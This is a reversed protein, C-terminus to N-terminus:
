FSVNVGFSVTKALPTDGTRYGNLPVELEMNKTAAYLFCLNTATVNFVVNGLKAKSTISSPLQYALGIEKLRIFDSSKVYRTSFLDSGTGGANPRPNDVVDGPKTWYNGAVDKSINTAARRGDHHMFYEPYNFLHGGFQYTLLVNLSFGKYVVQNNLGGSITPYAKAVISREAKSADNVVNDASYPKAPDKLFEALGTEPNVGVYTPFYFSYLDKGEEYRYFEGDGLNMSKGGPLKEVKAKLYSISFDANWKVKSKLMDTGHFEFDVGQNSIEGANQLVTTFGTSSSVPVEMILNSTYKRFYELSFNFRDALTIDTGINLNKSQEWGLDKNAPQSPYIASNSGYIGDFNYLPLHGYFSDPLRGNTGYSARLKGDTILSAAKMFSEQSFRWSGSVSYFVGTRKDAGLQSSRDARINAGVYYKNDFNYNVNSLFSQLFKKDTQGLARSPAGVSLDPLKDTSYNSVAAQTYNRHYSQVEYGALADLNHKEKFSKNYMFINSSTLALVKYDDTQGMGKVSGGGDITNPGWYENIFANSFDVGNTTKFSLDKTFKVTFNLNGLARFNETRLFKDKGNLEYYPNIGRGMLVANYEGNENKLTKSPNAQQLLGLPTGYGIGQSQSSQDRYGKQDTKSLQTKVDMSLWDALENNLNVVGSYRKFDTGRALGQIDQYGFSTYYKSKASGGSISVQYNQEQGHKYIYDRWDEGNVRSLGRKDLQALAYDEPSNFGSVGGRDNYYNMLALKSYDYYEIGNMTEYSNTAMSSVGFNAQLNVNVKGEKGKKTTIIVVGNAARSGYLSAAAADKLVTLSEIDNPNLSSLINSSARSNFNGNEVPVGDIVYLPSTSSSISGIGRVQIEGASGPDGTTSAVRVGSVKGALAKDVSEVSPVSLADAKVNAASGTFSSKKATGYAVVIVEDLSQNSSSLVVRMNPKATEEKSQLGVYSFVLTKSADQPIDLTFNGDFDTVTGITTGKIVVSAGIVPLNDEASIVVGSAKTQAALYSVGIMLFALFLTLRRM